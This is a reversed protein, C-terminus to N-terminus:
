HLEGSVPANALMEERDLIPQGIATLADCHRAYEALTAKIQDDTISQPNVDSARSNPTHDILTRLHDALYKQAWEDMNTVRSYDGSFVPWTVPCCWPLVLSGTSAVYPHSRVAVHPVPAGRTSMRRSSVVM